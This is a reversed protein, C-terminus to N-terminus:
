RAPALRAARHTSRSIPRRWRRSRIAIIGCHIRSPKTSSPRSCCAATMHTITRSGQWGFSRRGSIPTTALSTASGGRTSYARALSGSGPRPSRTRSIVTTGPSALTLRLVARPMRRQRAPQRRPRELPSSSITPIPTRNPDATIMHLLDQEAYDALAKTIHNTGGNPGDYVDFGLLKGSERELNRTAPDTQGPNGNIYFTPADDFHIGFPTTDGLETAIISDLNADIEGITAYTCPTNVGDCNAPSPPGGAFHDNEDATIVFLTNQKTIGDAALRAFFKGFADNYAALQQVYGAEGPGFARDNVHDDHADAIYGYVVPVGAELMTALYGLTQSASPDFGPFGINPPTSSDAIVNGDLDAVPGNPSIQPQVNANGYLATFGSYGGPEDSLIDAASHQACLPTNQACHVIIGEFDAIAKNRNSAAEMAQPSNPGFVNNIDSGVNEFEINAISFAGVDCGARTFPVWPAPANKGRKDLMEPLGDALVDTWYTFSSPFSAVGNQGFLGFSNGISFGFKDGYVGTLSTVIDVSTHSILPTHHNTFLTGESELFSLLNPIQELDSPVNPNDRRLHVNDFQIYVIHQIGNGLNCRTPSPQAATPEVLAVATSLAVAFFVIGRM